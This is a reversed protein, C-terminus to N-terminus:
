KKFKDKLNFLNNKAENTLFSIDSSMCFFTFGSNKLKAMRNENSEFIGLPRCKAKCAKAIKDFSVKIKPSSDLIM